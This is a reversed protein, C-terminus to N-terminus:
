WISLSESYHASGWRAREQETSFRIRGFFLGLGVVILLAGVIALGVRAPSTLDPAPVGTSTAISLPIVVTMTVPAILFSILHRWWLRRETKEVADVM